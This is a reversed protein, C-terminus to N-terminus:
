NRRKITQHPPIGYIVGGEEVDKNILSMTGLIAKNGIHIGGVVVTGAGIEVDDGLRPMLEKASNHAAGITVGHRVLCRKGIKVNGGIVIGHVHGVM